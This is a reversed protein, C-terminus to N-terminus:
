NFQINNGQVSYIGQLAEVNEFDKPVLGPFARMFMFPEFGEIPQGVRSVILSIAQEKFYNNLEIATIESSTSQTNKISDTSIYILIGLVILTAIIIVIKINKQM